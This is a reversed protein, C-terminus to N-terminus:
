VAGASLYQLQYTVPIGRGTESNGEFAQKLRVIKNRGNLGRGRGANLNRAGISKLERTLAALNPYYRLKKEGQLVPNQFGAHELVNRLAVDDHFHNVHVADDIKQWAQELEVLTGPGFTTMFIKGDNQMVRHLDNFLAPYNQCWQIALSSFILDFSNDRFPLNEADACVFYENLNEQQHQRAAFGLMGEAIDLSVIEAAPFLKQLSATCYGTGSGLDLLRKVRDDAQIKGLLKDAVERQLSAHADYSKVAQNFSRAVENKAIRYEAQLM